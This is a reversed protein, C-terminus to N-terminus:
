LYYVILVALDSRAYVSYIALISTLIWSIGVLLSNTTILSYCDFELLREYNPEKNDVKLKTREFWGVDDTCILRFSGPANDLQSKAVIAETLNSFSKGLGIIYFERKGMDRVIDRDWLM